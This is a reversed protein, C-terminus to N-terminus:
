IGSDRIGLLAPLEALGNGLELTHLKLEGIHVVCSSAARRSTYLAARRFSALSGKVCCPAMALYKADCIASCIVELATFDKTPHAIGFVGLPFIRGRHSSQNSKRLSTM